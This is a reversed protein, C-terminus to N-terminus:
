AAGHHARGQGDLLVRARASREACRRWSRPVQRAVRFAQAPDRERRLPHRRESRDPHPSEAARRETLWRDRDAARSRRKAGALGARRRGRARRAQHDTAYRACDGARVDARGDRASGRADVSRTTYAGCGLLRARSRASGHAVQGLRRASQRRVRGDAADLVDPAGVVVGPVLPLNIPSLEVESGLFQADYEFLTERGRLALRGVRMRRSPAPEYFVAVQEVHEVTM